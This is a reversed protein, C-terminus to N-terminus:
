LGRVVAAGDRINERALCALIAFFIVLRQIQVFSQIEQREKRRQSLFCHESNSTFSTHLRPLCFRNLFPQERGRAGDKELGKKDPGHRAMPRIFFITDNM